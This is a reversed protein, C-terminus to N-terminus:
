YAETQRLKSKYLAIKAWKKLFDCNTRLGMPKETTGALGKGQNWKQLCDTNAAPCKLAKLTHTSYLV